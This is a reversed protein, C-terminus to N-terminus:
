SRPGSAHGCRHHAYQSAISLCSDSPAAATDLIHGAQPRLRFFVCKPLSVPALMFPSCLLEPTAGLSFDRTKFFNKVQSGRPLPVAARVPLLALLGKEGVSGLSHALTGALAAGHAALFEAGGLLVCSAM